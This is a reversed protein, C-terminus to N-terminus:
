SAAGTSEVARSHTDPSRSGTACHTVPKSSNKRKAPTVTLTAGVEAIAQELGTPGFQEYPNEGAAVRASLADFAGISDLEGTHVEARRQTYDMEREDHILSAVTMMRHASAAALGACHNLVEVLEAASLENDPRLRPEVSHQSPDVSTSGAGAGSSMVGSYEFM